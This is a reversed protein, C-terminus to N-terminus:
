VNGDSSHLPKVIYLHHAGVTKTPKMSPVEFGYSIFALKRGLQNAAEQVKNYMKAIDRSDAFTYVVTTDKPLTAKWFNRMYVVVREDGLSLLTALMAIAPNIEYGVARAGLKSAMRLILGDGAGIDVLLDRATLPYLETLARKVDKPKSPVYPAGTFAMFGFFCIVGLVIWYWEM